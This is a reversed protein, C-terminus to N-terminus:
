GVRWDWGVYDGLRSGGFILVGLMIAPIMGAFGICIANNILDFWTM